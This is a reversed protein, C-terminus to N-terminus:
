RSPHAPLCSKVLTMKAKILEKCEIVVRYLFKVGWHFSKNIKNKRDFRMSSKFCLAKLLM